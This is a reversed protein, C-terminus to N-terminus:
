RLYHAGYATVGEKGVEYINGRPQKAPKAWTDAKLVDGTAKDIFCFVMRQGNSHDNVIRIYKKGKPDISLVGCPFNFAMKEHHDTVIKQARELWDSLATNFTCDERENKEQTEM